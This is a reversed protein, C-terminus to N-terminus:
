VIMKRYTFCHTTKTEEATSEGFSSRVLKGDNWDPLDGWGAERCDFLFDYKGNKVKSKHKTATM